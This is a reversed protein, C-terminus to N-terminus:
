APGNPDGWLLDGIETVPVGFLDAVPEDDKGWEVPPTLVLQSVRKPYHAALEAAVMAGFSHGIVPVNDLGLSEFLDDYFIALDHVDAIDKLEGLDNFGPALPATVSYQQGLMALTPDADSVGGAAHLFVVEPADSSGARFVKVSPATTPAEITSM